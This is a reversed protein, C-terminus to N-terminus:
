FIHALLSAPRVFRVCGLKLPNGFTVLLQTPSVAWSSEIGFKNGIITMAEEACPLHFNTHESVLETQLLGM